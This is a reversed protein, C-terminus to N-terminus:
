PAAAGSARADLADVILDALERVAGQGGPLQCILDARARIEPVADAVAVRLGAQSFAPLDGLDDGIVAIQNRGVQLLAGLRRVAAAKDACDLEVHVVGLKAARASVIPSREGTVFAVAVGREQLRGIGHGDRTHFRKLVEGQEGYWMAGDTLTGDVDCVLLRVNALRDGVEENTVVGRVRPRRDRMLTAAAGDTPGTGRGDHM